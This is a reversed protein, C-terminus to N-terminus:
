IAQLRAASGAEFERSRSVAMQILSAAIPAVLAVVLTAIPNSRENASRL